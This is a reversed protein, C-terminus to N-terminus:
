VQINGGVKSVKKVDEETFKIKCGWCRFVGDVEKPAGKLSTLSYCHSCYFNGVKEPAGELSTLSDCMWCKFDGGVEKPAGKLSTLSNCDSCYFDGGVEKPAGELSALSECWGCYFNGDVNTWIFMNNTLSTIKENKAKINKSSSVEYKGDTNPKHSIKCSSAGKFNDKLFQKIQDKISKDINEINDDVDFIGENIYSYLSIM